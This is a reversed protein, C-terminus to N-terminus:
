AKIRLGRWMAKLIRGNARLGQGFRPRDEREHVPVPVVAIRAGGALAALALETGISSYSDFHGRRKYLDIRYGKLGCLIDSVGYRLWTYLGFLAESFRATQPRIGIVIDAQDRALPQIIEDLIAADHQGDADFTVVIDMGLEEAKEFGSQLAGDYGLNATHNVVVAGAAAAIPATADSSCDNVVIVTRGPMVSRVVREITPAENWAPIVIAVQLVAIEPSTRPESVIAM